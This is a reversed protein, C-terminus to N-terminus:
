YNTDKIIKFTQFNLIQKIIFMTLHMLLYVLSCLLFKFNNNVVNYLFYM